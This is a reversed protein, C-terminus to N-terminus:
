FYYDCLGNSQPDINEGKTTEKTKFNYDYQVFNCEGKIPSDVILIEIVKANEEVDNIIITDIEMTTTIKFLEAILKENYDILLLKNDKVVFLRDKSISKIAQYQKSKFIVNGNIDYTKFETYEGLSSSYDTAVTFNSTDQSIYIYPSPDLNIIQYDSKLFLYYYSQLFRQSIPGPLELTLYDNSNTHHVRIDIPAEKVFSSDNIVQDNIKNKEKIFEKFLKGTKLDYLGLTQKYYGDQDKDGNCDFESELSSSVITNCSNTVIYDEKNYEISEIEYINNDNKFMKKNLDFAYFNNIVNDDERKKIDLGIIQSSNSYFYTIEQNDYDLNYYNKKNSILDYTFIKKNDYILIKKEASAVDLLKCEKRAQSICKYTKILEDNSSALDEKTKEKEFAYINGYYNDQYIYILINNKNGPHNEAKRDNILLAYSGGTIILIGLIIFLIHKKRSMGKIKQWINIKPKEEQSTKPNDNM